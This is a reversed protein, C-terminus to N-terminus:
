KLNRNFGFTCHTIVANHTMSFSPVSIKLVCSSKSKLVYINNNRRQSM